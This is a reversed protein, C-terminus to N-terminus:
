FMYKSLLNSNLSHVTIVLVSSACFCQSSQQEHIHFVKTSTPCVTVTQQTGRLAM